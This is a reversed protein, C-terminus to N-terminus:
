SPAVHLGRIQRSWTVLFHGMHTWTPEVLIHAILGRWCPEGWASLLPLTFTSVPESTSDGTAFTFLVSLPQGGRVLTPQFRSGLLHRAQRIVYRDILWDILRDIGDGSESDVGAYIKGRVRGKFGQTEQIWQPCVTDRCQCLWPSTKPPPVAVKQLPGDGTKQSSQM